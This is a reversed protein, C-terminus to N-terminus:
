IYTKILAEIKHVLTVFGNKFQINFLFCQTKRNFFNLYGGTEDIHGMQM